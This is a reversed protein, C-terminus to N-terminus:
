LNFIINVSFRNDKCSFVLHGHYKEVIKQMSKTGYGHNIKDAKLTMPLGNVIRPPTAVYNSIEIKAMNGVRTVFLEITKDDCNERLISEEANDLANGFLSYIDVDDLMNLLSGDAICNVDIGKSRCQITKETIIVDLAENGTKLFTEYDSVLKLTEKIGDSYADDPKERANLYYKLDHYKINLLEMTQRSAAYQKKANAYLTTLVENEAQLNLLRVGYFMNNLILTCCAISFITMVSFQLAGINRYHDSIFETVVCLVIALLTALLATILVKKDSVPFNKDGKLIKRVLFYVLLYLATAVLVYLVISLILNDYGLTYFIYKYVTKLRFFIHEFLYAATGFFIAKWRDIVCCIRSSIVVLSAVTVYYVVYLVPLLVPGTVYSLLLTFLFSYLLCGFFCCVLRVVVHKRPTFFGIIPIYAILLEFLFGNKNFFDIVFDM